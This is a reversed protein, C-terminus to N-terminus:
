RIVERAPWWERRGDAHTVQVMQDTAAPDGRIPDVPRMTLLCGTPSEAWGTVTVPQGAVTASAGYAHRSSTM